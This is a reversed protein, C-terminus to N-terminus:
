MLIKWGFSKFAWIVNFFFILCTFNNQWQALGSKDKDHGEFCHLPHYHCSVGNWTTNEAEATQLKGATSCTSHDFGPLPHSEHTCHSVSFGDHWHSTKTVSAYKDPVCLDIKRRNWSSILLRFEKVDLVAIPKSPYTFSLFEQIARM